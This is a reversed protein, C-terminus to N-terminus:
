RNWFIISEMSWQNQPLTSDKSKRRLFLRSLDSIARNETYQIKKFLTSNVCGLKIPLIKFKMIKGLIEFCVHFKNCEVDIDYIRLCIEVEVLDIVDEGVCIPPPNRASVTENIISYNNYTLTVSIGYDHELYSANACLTGNLDIRDWEIHQCCGCDYSICECSNDRRSSENFVDIYSIASETVSTIADQDTSKVIQIYLLFVAIIGVFSIIFRAM